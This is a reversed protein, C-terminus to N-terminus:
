EEFDVYEGEDDPIIQQKAQEPTRRDYIVNGDANRHSKKTKQQRFQKTAKRVQWYFTLAMWLIAVLGVIFIFLIFKLLFM